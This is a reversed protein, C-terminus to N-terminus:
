RPIPHFESQMLTFIATRTMTYPPIGIMSIILHSNHNYNPYPESQGSETFLLPVAAELHMSPRSLEITM